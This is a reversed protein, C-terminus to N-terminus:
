IVNPQLLLVIPQVLDEHVEDAGRHPLRRDVIEDVVVAYGKIPLFFVLQLVGGQMLYDSKIIECKILFKALDHVLKQLVDECLHLDVKLDEHFRTFDTRFACVLRM